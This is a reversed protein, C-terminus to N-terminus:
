GIDEKKKQIWSSYGASQIRATEKCHSSPNKIEGFNSLKQNEMNLIVLDAEEIRIIGMM